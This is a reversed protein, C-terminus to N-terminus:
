FAPLRTLPYVVLGNKPSLFHPNSSMGVQIFIEVTELHKEKIKNYNKKQRRAMEEKCQPYGKLKAFYIAKARKRAESQAM